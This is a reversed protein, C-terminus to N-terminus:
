THIVFFCANVDGATVLGHLQHFLVRFGGEVLVNQAIQTREAPKIRDRALLERLRHQHGTSVTHAGLQFVREDGAPM